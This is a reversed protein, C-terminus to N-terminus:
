YHKTLFESIELVLVEKVRQNNYIRGHVGTYKGRVKEAGWYFARVMRTLEDYVSFPIKFVGMMYTPLALAVSKIPTERGLQALHGDGWQVLRKTLSMQLNQFRGKSMRGEPTPLGLYKESMAEQQIQLAAKVGRKVSTGSNPSFYVFSNMKNASQVSGLSYQELIENLRTASRADTKM